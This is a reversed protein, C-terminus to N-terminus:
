EDRINLNTAIQPLVSQEASMLKQRNQMLLATFFYFIFFQDNLCIIRDWLKLILETSLKHSFYTLFWPMSYMAVTCDNKEMYNSLEPDHYKVLLKLGCLACQFTHFDEDLYFTPLFRQIFMAM